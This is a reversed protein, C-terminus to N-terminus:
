FPIDEDVVESMGMDVPAPAASGWNIKEKLWNPVKDIMGDIPSDLDFYVVENKLAPVDMGKPVASLGQVSASIGGGRKEKHVINVMCPLELLAKDDFKEKDAESMAKGRLSNLDATLAAKDHLSATYFKSAVFPRGDQMLENVLEFGYVVKRQIKSKGHPDVYEQEGIDVISYIRAIHNGAPTTEFDGGGSSTNYKSM